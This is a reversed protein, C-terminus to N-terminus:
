CSNKKGNFQYSLFLLNLVRLALRGSPERVPLAAAYTTLAMTYAVFASLKMIIIFYIDVTRTDPLKCGLQTPLTPGAVYVVM